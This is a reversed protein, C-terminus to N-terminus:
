DAATEDATKDTACDLKQQARAAELRASDGEFGLREAIHMRALCVQAKARKRDDRAEELLDEEKMKGLYFSAIPGPWEDAEHAFATELERKGLEAQGSRVRAVYLWLATQRGSPLVDVAKRLREAAEAHRGQQLLRRGTFANAQPNGGSAARELWAQGKAADPHKGRLHIIALIMQADANGLDAEHQIWPAIRHRRGLPEGGIYSFYLKKQSMAFLVRHSRLFDAGLLM